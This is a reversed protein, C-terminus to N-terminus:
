EVRTTAIIEKKEDNILLPIGDIGKERDHITLRYISRYSQKKSPATISFIFTGFDGPAVVSEKLLVVRVEDRWEEDHFPNQNKGDAAYSSLRVTTQKWTSTGTNKLKLLVETSDGPKMTDPIGFEMLQAKWASQAETTKAVGTPKDVTTKVLLAQEGGVLLTTDNLKRLADFLSFRYRTILVGPIRPARITFLFHATEGPKVVQEKMLAVKTSDRWSSHKFPNTKKGSEDTSSLRLSLKKWEIKSTNQLQIEVKATQGAKMESPITNIVVKSQYLPEGVVLLGHRSSSVERTELVDEHPLVSLALLSEYGRAEKPFQLPVSFEALEGPAVQEQTFSFRGAPHKWFNNVAASSAALTTNVPAASIKTKIKTKVPAKSPPPPPPPLLALPTPAGAVDAITLVVEGKKWIRKGVNRYQITTAVLDGAFTQAPLSNNVYVGAYVEDLTVVGGIPYYRTLKRSPVLPASSRVPMDFLAQVVEDAVFPRRTGDQIFWWVNSDREKVLTRDAFQPAFYRTWIKYFNYNAGVLRNDVRAGGRWPNYIYLGATAQNKVTVVFGDSTTAGQGVSFRPFESPHDFYYRLRNASARVQNGFGKYAEVGACGDCRSYGTAWDYQKQAPSPDEILSQEKQLMVLLVEPNVRADQAAQWIIRAASKLEGSPPTPEVYGTIAGGKAQLFEQIQEPTMSLTDTLDEDSIINNSDFKPDTVLDVTQAFVFLPQFLFIGLLLLSLPKQLHKLM